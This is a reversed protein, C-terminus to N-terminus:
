NDKDVLVTIQEMAHLEAENKLLESDPVLKAKEAGLEKVLKL